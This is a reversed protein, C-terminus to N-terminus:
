CDGRRGLCQLFEEYARGFDAGFPSGALAKACEGYYWAQAAPGAAFRRWYEPPPDARLDHLTTTLNHLKDAGAVRKVSPPASALRAVYAAKRPRWAPKPDDFTDTCAAVIDAVRDGFIVRVSELMPRGGCDEAADHLLAAIAEDEDGGSELVLACVAMLHAVYPVDAGKRRQRAHIQNAFQLALAFRPTFFPEPAHATM